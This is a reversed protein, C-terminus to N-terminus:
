LKCIILYKLINRFFRLMQIIYHFIHNFAGRCVLHLFLKNGCIANILKIPVCWNNVLFIVCIHKWFICVWGFIHLSNFFFNNVTKVQFNVNANDLIWSETYNRWIKWKIFTLISCKQLRNIFCLSWVSNIKFYCIDNNKEIFLYIM